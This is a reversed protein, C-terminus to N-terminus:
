PINKSKMNTALELATFIVSPSSPRAPPSDIIANKVNARILAFEGAISPVDSIATNQKTSTPLKSPNRANLERGAFTNIPSVPESARPAVKAVIAIIM